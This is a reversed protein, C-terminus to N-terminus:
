CPVPLAGLGRACIAAEAAGAIRAAGRALADGDRGDTRSPRVAGAACGGSAEMSAASASSRMASVDDDIMRASSSTERSGERVVAGIVTGAAASGGRGLRRNRLETTAVRATITATTMADTAYKCAVPALARISIAPRRPAQDASTSRSVGSARVARPSSPAAWRTVAARGIVVTPAAPAGGTSAAAPLVDAGGVCATTDAPSAGATASGFTVGAGADAAGGDACGAGADDGDVTSASAAGVVCGAADSLEGDGRVTSACGPEDAVFAGRATLVAEGRRPDRVEEDCAAAAFATAGRVLSDGLM